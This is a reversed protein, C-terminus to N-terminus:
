STNPDMFSTLADPNGSQENQLPRGGSSYFIRSSVSIFPNVSWWKSCFLYIIVVFNSLPLIRRLSSNHENHHQLWKTQLKSLRLADFGKIAIEPMICLCHPPAFHLYFFLIYSWKYNWVPKLGSSHISKISETQTRGRSCQCTVRMHEYDQSEFMNMVNVASSNTNQLRHNRAPLWPSVSSIVSWCHRIHCKDNQSIKKIWFTWIHFNHVFRARLQHWVKFPNAGLFETEWYDSSCVSSIMVNSPM